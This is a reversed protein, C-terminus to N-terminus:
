SVAIRYTVIGILRQLKLIRVGIANVELYSLDAHNKILTSQLKDLCRVLSTKRNVLIELEALTQPTSKKM